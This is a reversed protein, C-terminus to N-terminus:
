RYLMVTNSIEEQIRRTDDSMQAYDRIFKVLYSAADSMHGTRGDAAKDLVNPRRSLVMGMGDKKFVGYAQTSFDQIVTPCREGSLWAGVQGKANELQACTAAVRSAISGNSDPFARITKIRADKIQMFVGEWLTRGSANSAISVQRANGSSVGGLRLAIGRASLKRLLDGHRELLEAVAEPASGDLISIEDQFYVLLKQANIQPWRLREERTKINVPNFIVQPEYYTQQRYIVGICVSMPSIGFDFTAFPIGHHHIVTELDFKFPPLGPMPPAESSVVHKHRDFTNYVRASKSDVDNGYVLAQAIDTPLDALLRDVYDPTHKLLAVNETSGFRFVKDFFNQENIMKTFPHDFSLAPNSAAFIHTKLDNYQKGGPSRRVRQTLYRVCATYDNYESLEELVLCDTELGRASIFSEASVFNIHAALDPLDFSGSSRNFSYRLGAELFAAQLSIALARKHQRFDRTVLTLCGKPYKCVFEIVRWALLFTKGSGLGGVYAIRPSQDTLSEIQKQTLRLEFPKM